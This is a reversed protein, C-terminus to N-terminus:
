SMMMWSPAMRATATIYRSRKAARAKGWGLCRKAPLRPSMRSARVQRGAETTPSTAREAMLPGRRSEPIDHGSVSVAMRSMYVPSSISRSRGYVAMLAGNRVASPEVIPSTAPPGEIGACTTLSAFGGPTGLPRAWITYTGPALAGANLTGVYDARWNINDTLYSAEVRQPKAVRNELLWVLTPRAILNEPVEPFIVRGPHGFTIGNGIRYIPGGNNSLLTATVTEERETYPNKQYLKVERGVYKDLLKQPNLLDYEYNQELVGLGDPDTLSKVSVSAPIIASAVDMFLLEGTGAALKVERQDKVLGLNANYITLAVAKQDQLTASQQFTRAAADSTAAFLQFNLALFAFPLLVRIKDAKRM